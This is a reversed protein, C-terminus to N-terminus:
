CLNLNLHIICTIFLLSLQWNVSLTKVFILEGEHQCDKSTYKTITGNFARDSGAWFVAIRRGVISEPNDVYKNYGTMQCDDNGSIICQICDRTVNSWPDSAEPNKRHKDRIRPLHSQCDNANDLWQVFTPLIKQTYNTNSVLVNMVKPYHCVLTFFEYMSYCSVKYYQTMLSSISQVCIEVIKTLRITSLKDNYSLLDRIIEYISKMEDYESREMATSIWEMTMTHFNENNWSLHQFMVLAESRRSMLKKKNQSSTTRKISTTLIISNVYNVYEVTELIQLVQSSIPSYPPRHHPSLTLINDDVKDDMNDKDDTASNLTITCSTFLLSTLKMGNKSLTTKGTSRTNSEVGSRKTNNVFPLTRCMHDLIETNLVFNTEEEGRKVFDCIMAYEWESVQTPNKYIFSIMRLIFQISLPPKLNVADDNGDASILGNNNGNHNTGDSHDHKKSISQQVDERTVELLTHLLDLTEGKKISGIRERDLNSLACMADSLLLRTADVVATNYSTSTSTSYNKTNQSNMIHMATDYLNTDKPNLLLQVFWKAASTNNQYGRGLTGRFDRLVSEEVNPLHVLTALLYKTGYVLQSQECKTNPVTLGIFKQMFESYSPDMLNRKKWAVMNQGWIENYLDLPMRRNYTAASSSLTEKMKSAAEIVKSSYENTSSDKSSEKTEDNGFASHGSGGGSSSSSSSSSGSSGSISDIRSNKNPSITTKKREYFLMFANQRKEYKSTTVQGTNYSKHTRVGQGGYCDEEIRDLDWKTVLRDNFECWKAKKLAAATKNSNDIDSNQTNKREKREEKIYSFYHGGDATGTHITIGVLDYQYYEKPHPANLPVYMLDVSGGSVESEGSVGEADAALPGLTSTDGSKLDDFNNEKSSGDGGSSNSRSGTSSSISVKSEDVVNAHTRTGAVVLPTGGRQDYYERGECTYPFMNIELPFEFRDNLKITQFTTYDLDFRKLHVPLCPPLKKITSRKRTLLEEKENSGSECDHKDWKFDVDNGAFQKALSQNLSKVGRVDVSLYQESPEDRSSTYKHGDLTSTAYKEGLKYINFVDLINEHRTNVVQDKISHLLRGYYASADQQVRPNIPKSPDDPDKYTHCFDTPDYYQKESEQLYAYMRQTQYIMSEKPDNHAIDIALVARRWDKIMFLNQNTANMYCTCCLNRLGVYGTLSKTGNYETYTNVYKSANNQYNTSTTGSTTVSHHSANTMRGGKRHYSSHTAIDPDNLVHRPSCMAAVKQVNDDCSRCLELILDFTTKRLQKSKCLPPQIDLHSTESSPADFLGKTLLYEVLGHHVGVEVKLLTGAESGDRALLSTLCSMLGDFRPDKDNETKQVISSQQIETSLTKAVDCLDLGINSSNKLLIDLLLFYEQSHLANRGVTKKLGDKLLLEIFYINSSVSDDNMCLKNIGRGLESRVDRDHCEILAYLFADKTSADNEYIVNMLSSSKTVFSVLLSTANEITKAEISVAASTTATNMEKSENKSSSSGSSSSNNSQSIVTTNTTSSIKTNSSSSSSSGSDSGGGNANGNAARAIINVIVLLRPILDKYDPDMQYEELQLLVIHHLEDNHNLLQYFHNFLRLLCVLCEKCLEDDAFRVVDSDILIHYMHTFGGSRVFRIGYKTAQSQQTQSIKEGDNVFEPFVLSNVIQLSYLLQLPAVTSGNGLLENWEKRSISEIESITNSRQRLPNNSSSGQRLTDVLTTDVGRQSNSRTEELAQKIQDETSGCLALTTRKEPNTPVGDKTLLKWATRATHLDKRGIMQFLTNFYDTEHTLIYM